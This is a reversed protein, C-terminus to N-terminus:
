FNELLYTRLKPNDKLLMPFGKGMFECVEEESFKKKSNSAFFEFVAHLIEHIFVERQRENPLNKDIKICYKKHDCLGWVSEGNDNIPNSEVRVLWTADGIKLTKPLKM